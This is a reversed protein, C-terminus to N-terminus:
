KSGTKPASKSQQPRPGHAATEYPCSDCKAPYWHAAGVTYPQGPRLYAGCDRCTGVLEQNRLANTWATDDIDRTNGVRVAAWFGAIRRDHYLPQQRIM